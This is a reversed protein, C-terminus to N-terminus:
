AAPELPLSDPSDSGNDTEPKSNREISKSIQEILQLMRGEIDAHVEAIVPDSAVLEELTASGNSESSLLASLIQQPIPNRDAGDNFAVSVEYADGEGGFRVSMGSFAGGNRDCISAFPFIVRGDICSKLRSATYAKVGEDWSDEALKDCFKDSFELEIGVGALPHKIHELQQRIRKKQTEAGTKGIVFVNEGFDQALTSFNPLLLMSKRARDYMAKNSKSNANSVFGIQQGNLHAHYATGILITRAFNAVDGPIEAKGTMMLTHLLDALESGCADISDFVIVSRFKRRSDLEPLARATLNYVKKEVRSALLCKCTAQTQPDDNETGIYQSLFKLQDFYREQFRKWWLLLKAALPYRVHFDPLHLKGFLPTPQLGSHNPDGVLSSLQGPYGSSSFHNCDVSTYSARGDYPKGIWSNALTQIILDIQSAREGVLLISMLPGTHRMPGADLITISRAVRRALIDFVEDKEDLAKIADFVRRGDASFHMYQTSFSM